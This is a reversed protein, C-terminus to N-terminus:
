PRLDEGVSYLQCVSFKWMCAKPEYKFHTPFIMDVLKLDQVTSFEGVDFGNEDFGLDSLHLMDETHLLAVGFVGAARDIAGTLLRM